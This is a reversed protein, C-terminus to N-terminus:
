YDLKEKEMLERIRGLRGEGDRFNRPPDEYEMKRRMASGELTAGSDVSRTSPRREM